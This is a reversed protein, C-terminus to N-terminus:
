NWDKINTRTARKLLVNLYNYFQPTLNTLPKAIKWMHVHTKKVDTFIGVFCQLKYINFSVIQSWIETSSTRPMFIVTFLMPYFILECFFELGLYFFFESTHLPSELFQLLSKFCLSLIMLFIFLYLFLSLILRASTPSIGGNNGPDKRENIPVLVWIRQRRCCLFVVPIALHLKRGFCLSIGKSLACPKSKM